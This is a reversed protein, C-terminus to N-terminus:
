ETRLLEIEYHDIINRQQEYIPIVQVIRFEFNDFIILNDKVLFQFENQGWYIGSGMEDTGMAVPQVNIYLIHSIKLSDERDNVLRSHKVRSIRGPLNKRITDWTNQVAGTGASHTIIRRRLSVKHILLDRSIM